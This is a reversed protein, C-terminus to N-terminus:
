GSKLLLTSANEHFKLFPKAQYLSYSIVTKHHDGFNHTRGGEHHSSGFAFSSSRSIDSDSKHRQMLSLKNYSHSLESRRCVSKSAMPHRFSHVNSERASGNSITIITLASDNTLVLYTVQNGL